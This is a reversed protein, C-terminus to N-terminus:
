ISDWEPVLGAKAENVRQTSAMREHIEDNSHWFHGCIGGYVSKLNIFWRADNWGSRFTFQPPRTPFTPEGWCVEERRCNVCSREDNYVTRGDVTTVAIRERYNYM